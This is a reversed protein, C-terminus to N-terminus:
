NKQPALFYWEQRSAVFDEMVHKMGEQGEYFIIKPVKLIKKRLAQLGPLVQELQLEAAIIKRRKKRALRWLKDPNESAFIKQNNKESESVLGQKKLNELALYVTPRKLGTQKAIFGARSEGLSLLALYVKAEHKSLGLQTLPKETPTM